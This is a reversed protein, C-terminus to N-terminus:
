GIDDGERKFVVPAGYMLEFGTFDCFAEDVSYVEVDPTYSRLLDMLDNSRSVYLSYDPPM